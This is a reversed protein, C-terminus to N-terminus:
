ASQQWRRLQSTAAITARYALAVHREWEEQLVAQAEDTRPEIGGLRLWEDDFWGRAYAFRELRDGPEPVYGDLDAYAQLPQGYHGLNTYHFAM